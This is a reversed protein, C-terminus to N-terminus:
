IDADGVELARASSVGATKMMCGGIVDLLEKHGELGLGLRGSGRRRRESRRRFRVLRLRVVGLSLLAIM